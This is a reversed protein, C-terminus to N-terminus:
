VRLGRRLSELELIIEDIYQNAALIFEANNLHNEHREFMMPSEPHFHVIAKRGNTVIAKSPEQKEATSLEGPLIEPGTYIDWRPDIRNTIVKDKKIDEKLGGPRGNIFNWKGLTRKACIEKLKKLDEDTM